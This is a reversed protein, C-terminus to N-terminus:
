RDTSLAQLSQRSPMTKRYSKRTFAIWLWKTSIHARRRAEAGSREGGARRLFLTCALPSFPPDVALESSAKNPTESPEVLTELFLSLYFENVSGRGVALKNCRAERGEGQQGADEDNVHLDVLNVIMAPHNLLMLRSWIPACTHSFQQRTRPKFYRTLCTRSNDRKSAFRM